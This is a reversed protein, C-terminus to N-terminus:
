DRVWVARCYSMEEGSERCGMVWPWLSGDAWWWNMVVESWCDFDCCLIVLSVVMASGDGQGWWGFWVQLCVMMWREGFRCIWLDGLDIFGSSTGEWREAVAAFHFLHSFSFFFFNFWFLLCFDTSGKVV